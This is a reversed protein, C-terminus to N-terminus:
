ILKSIVQAQARKFQEIVEETYPNEKMISYFLDWSDEGQVRKMDLLDEYALTSLESTTIDMSKMTRGIFHSLGMVHAMEKDHEDATKHIIKLGLEEQLLQYLTELTDESARVKSVVCKLGQIGKNHEISAPGFLPHTGIISCSNPLQEELIGLPKVKVSCVDIVLADPNILKRHASFFEEFFQSPISAIIISQSLVENIPAFTAGFGADGSKHSRSSVVMAAFPELHELIVKTFDGYGIIGINYKKM